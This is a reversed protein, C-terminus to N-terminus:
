APTSTAHNRGDPLRAWLLAQLGLALAFVLSCLAFPARLSVNEALLGGFLPSMFVGTALVAEHIGALRGGGHTRGQLSHFLSMSYAMASAAGTVAFAVAFHWPLGVRCVAAMAVLAGVGLALLPWRRM